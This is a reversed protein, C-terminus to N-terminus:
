AKAGRLLQEIRAVGGAARALWRPSCVSGPQLLSQRKRGRHLPLPARPLRAAAPRSIEVIESAAHRFIRAGHRGLWTFGTIIEARDRPRARCRPVRSFPTKAHPGEGSCAPPSDRAFAPCM